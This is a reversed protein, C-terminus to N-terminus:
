GGALMGALADDLAGDLAQKTGQRAARGAGEADKVGTIHITTNNEQKVPPLPPGFTQPKGITASTMSPDVGYDALNNSQGGAFLGNKGFVADSARDVIGGLNKGLNDIGSNDGDVLKAVAGVTAAIAEGLGAVLRVAAAVSKVVFVFAKAISPGAEVGMKMLDTLLPKLQPGLEQFAKKIDDVTTKLDEFFKNTDEVGMMENLWDRTASEGGNMGVWLDEFLLALAAVLGAVLAIEGLGLATKWFSADKPVVGLLKAFGSASKMTAAVSAAGFLGVTYKALNTERNMRILGQTWTKFQGVVRMLIPLAERAISSKFNALGFKVKDIEDGADDAAHVFDESLGGGLSEFEARLKNAEESGGKLLPILAAGSKGFLKMAVTTREADSGMGAFADAIEPLMDGIERVGENDKLAIGLKAFTEAAEKNGDLADGINKNLFQLGKAAEESGVGALGAAFQFAQLDKVGVGLRESLDNIRSGAEIQGEIFAGVGHVIASGVFADALAGLTQKASNMAADIGKLAEKAKGTDIDFSALLERLM